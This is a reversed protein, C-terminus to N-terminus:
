VPVVETIKGSAKSFEIAHRMAHRFTKWETRDNVSLVSEFERKDNLIRVYFM